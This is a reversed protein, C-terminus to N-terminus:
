ALGNHQSILQDTAIEVRCDAKTGAGRHLGIKRTLLLLLREAEVQAFAALFQQHFLHAALVISLSLDRKSLGCQTSRILLNGEIENLWQVLTNKEFNGSRQILAGIEKL